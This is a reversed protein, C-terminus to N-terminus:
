DLTGESAKIDQRHECAAAIAAEVGAAMSDLSLAPVGPKALVQEHAYPVHIFGARAAHGSAALFHLVGYMLHNCVYTGASNSVHAPVNAARIGAAM